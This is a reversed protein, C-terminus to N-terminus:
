RELIQVRKQESTPGSKQGSFFLVLGAKRSGSRARGFAKSTM